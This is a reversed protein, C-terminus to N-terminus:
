NKKIKELTRTIFRPTLTKIPNVTTELNKPPGKIKFSVGFVGEGTKSGVLIKGLIPINGIAKNITTAPVLSGRLSVIKDKEVYGDMLISIAPGIAYLEEIETLNGENSFNMEFDDFLIGEGSLIDAIGQLSALTLLKTLIPVERLRFNYIKLNSTSKDGTKSSYFDLIGGKFGKIFKYRKIIPEARDLFMTTVKEQDKTKITFKFKQDKSFSANLEANLIKNKKFNLQGVLDKVVHDKDLYVQDIKIDLNFNQNFINLDKSNDDNILNEILNNANFKTGVLSYKKNLNSVRINNERKDIDFYDFGIKKFRTIKFNKDILMQNLYFKNKNEEYSISDLSTEKGFFHRGTFKINAKLNAKKEYGLFDIFLPNKEFSLKSEFDLSKDKRKLNYEIFDDKSQFLINGKGNITLIKKNYNIKILHNNFDIKKKIDPFFNKLDLKNMLKLSNLKIESTFKFDDIKFKRNVKLSFKNKSDFILNEIDLNSLNTKFFNEVIEDELSINKNEFSGSVFFSKDLNKLIIENSFM